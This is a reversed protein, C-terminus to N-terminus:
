QPELQIQLERLKMLAYLVDLTPVAIGQRHAARVANGLISETEMPHQNEFDLLMSTKYPPM